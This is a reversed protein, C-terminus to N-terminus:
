HMNDKALEMFKVSKFIIALQSRTDDFNVIEFINHQYEGGIQIMYISLRDLFGNEVFFNVSEQLMITNVFGEMHGFSETYIIDTRNKCTDFYM